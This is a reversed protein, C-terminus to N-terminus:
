EVPLERPPAIVEGFCIVYGNCDEVAFEHTEYETTEPQRVIKARRGKLESYLADLDSVNIYADWASGACLQRRITRAESLPKATPQARSKLMIEIGDRLM